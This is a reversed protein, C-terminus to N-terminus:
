KGGRKPKRTLFRDQEQNLNRQLANIQDKSLAATPASFILQGDRIEHWGIYGNYVTAVPIGLRMLSYADGLYKAEPNDPDDVMDQAGRRRSLLGDSPSTYREIHGHIIFLPRGPGSTGGSIFDGTDVSGRTTGKGLPRVEVTGDPLLYAVVTKEYQGARVRVKDINAQAIARIQATVIADRGNLRAANEPKVAAALVTQGDAEGSVLPAHRPVSRLVAVEGDDAAVVDTTPTSLSAKTSVAGPTVRSGATPPTNFFTTDPSANGTLTGRVAGASGLSNDNPQLVNATQFSAPTLAPGLTRTVMQKDADSMVGAVSGYYDAARLPNDPTMAAISDRYIASRYDAIQRETEDPSRREIMGQQIIANEGTAMHHDQVDPDDFHAVADRAAATQLQASQHKQEILGQERVHTGARAIDNKLRDALVDAVIGRQRPILAALVQDHADALGAAVEPFAAHADAGHHILLGNDGDMLNAAQDSYDVYAKKAAADDLNRLHDPDNSIAAIMAALDRRRKEALAAALQQGSEGFGALGAGLATLGSGGYDAAQFRADTLGAIGVKNDEIPVIIPM